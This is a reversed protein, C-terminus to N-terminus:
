SKKFIAKLEDFTIPKFIYKKILPIKSAKSTDKPDISSSIMYLDFNTKSAVDLKVFEDLFQWGDMVPMRVDLLIVDPQLKNEMETSKFYDLAQQGDKFVVINECLNQISILRKIAYVYVDDDDIIFVTNVLDM